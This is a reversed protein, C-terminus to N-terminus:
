HSSSKAADGLEQELADNLRSRVQRVALDLAEMLGQEEPSPCLVCVGDFGLLTAGSQGSENAARAEHWCQRVLWGTRGDCVVVDCTAQALDHVTARGHCRERWSSAEFLTQAERLLPDGEPGEVGAHLLGVVPQPRALVHRALLGGLIGYQFLHEPGASVSVGTDLLVCTGGRTPLLAALAPRRVAKLLRHRRLGEALVAEPNGASIVGAVRHEGLLQWCRSISNDPKERLASVAPETLRIAQSCHFVDLREGTDDPRPLFPQFLAQDGVLLVELDPDAALAHLAAAILPGPAHDGIRADLALRM